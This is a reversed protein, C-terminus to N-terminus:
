LLKPSAFARAVTRIGPPMASSQEVSTVLCSSSQNAETGFSETSENEVFPQYRTSPVSTKRARLSRKKSPCPAVNREDFGGDSWRAIQRRTSELRITRLSM